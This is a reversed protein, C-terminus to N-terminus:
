SKSRHGHQGLVPSGAAVVWGAAQGDKSKGSRRQSHLVHVMAAVGLIPAFLHLVPVLCAATILAGQFLVQPRQSRYLMGATARDTRLMAVPEFLGRGVAWAAVFWGLLLGVGPLLLSAILAVVQVLLVRLGLSVAYWTQDVLSAPTSAPLDPYYKAEVARAIREIFLSAILTSLPLFLWISAVATTAAGALGALWSWWGHVDLAWQVGMAVAATLVVFALVSWVVSHVLVGLFVRDTTQHIARLTPTLFRM